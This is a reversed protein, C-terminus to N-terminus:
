KNGHSEFKSKISAQGMSQICGTPSWMLDANSDSKHKQAHNMINGAINHLCEDSTIEVNMNPQFREGSLTRM